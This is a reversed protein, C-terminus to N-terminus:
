RATTVGTKRAPAAIYAKTDVTVLGGDTPSVASVRHGGSEPPSSRGMITLNVIRRGGEVHLRVHFSV